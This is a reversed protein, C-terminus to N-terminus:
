VNFLNIIDKWKKNILKIKKYNLNVICGPWFSLAKLNFFFYYSM